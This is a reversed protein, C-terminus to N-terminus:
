ISEVSLILNRKKHDHEINVNEIFDTKFSDYVKLFMSNHCPKM